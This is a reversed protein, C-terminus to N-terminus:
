RGKSLQQLVMIITIQISKVKDAWVSEDFISLPKFFRMIKTIEFKEHVSPCQFLRYTPSTRFNSFDNVKKKWFGSIVSNKKLSITCVKFYQKVFHGCGAGETCWIMNPWLVQGIFFDLVFRSLFRLPIKERIM